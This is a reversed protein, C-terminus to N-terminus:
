VPKELYLFKLFTTKITDWKLQYMWNKKMLLKFQEKWHLSKSILEWIKQELDRDPM